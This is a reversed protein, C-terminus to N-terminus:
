FIFQLEITWDEESRVIAVARIFERFYFRRETESLDRWFEAISVTKSTELLNVPPLQSLRSKIESIEAKLRYARLGATQEDLVQQDVLGPLQDLTSQKASVSASLGSKILDLPPLPRGAIADPLDQCIREITKELVTDYPLAKCKPQQPCTLPRLYLYEYTQRHATVRSVTMASQCQQCRVLGSLSRPASAARPSLNRNRRLLRDVQAAEDRSILPTHTDSLVSQDQYSLDGRYAPNTLWHQGTSVSIKKGYKKDIHRVAGRLSGYLLFQDFFERVVVAVTKDIIYRDRGRRYGYPAKGPPPLGKIRNQGHGQRIKRSRQQQQVGDLLSLLNASSASASNQSDSRYAQELAVVCVGFQELEMLCDTVARITDGLEALQRLVLYCPPSQNANQRLAQLQSRQADSDEYVREFTWGWSSVDPRPELVPDYYLYAISTM